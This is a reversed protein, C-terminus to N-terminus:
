TSSGTSALWRPRCIATPTPSERRTGARTSAAAAARRSTPTRASPPARRPSSATGTGTSTVRECPRRQLPLREGSGTSSRRSMGPRRGDRDADCNNLPRARRAAGTPSVPQEGSDYAYNMLSPYNPKCNVDPLRTTRGATVSGSRTDPRTPRSTPTTSTTRRPSGAAPRRRRRHRLRVRLPLRWAAGPEAATRWANGASVGQYSDGVKNADVGNFGGWDGYIAADAPTEPDRGTDLHVSIGPSGDPNGVYGAHLRRTASDVTERDGYFDKFKRAVDAAMMETSEDDNEEKTRRMWDVEVFLDKHRPSAGWTPLALNAAFGDRSVRGGVTELGDALGDGDTDRLDPIVGCTVGSVVDGRAACTGLRSEVERGLGDGDADHGPLAADNRILRTRQEGADTNVSGANALVVQRTGLNAEVELEAGGGPANGVRRREIARGDASLLYLAHASKSGPQRVTTIKEGTRLGTLTMPQWPVFAVPRRSRRGEGYTTQLTARGNGAATAARIVLYHTARKPSRYVLKAANGPGSNDDMAVQRGSTDVLHLTPDAGATLDSTEFTVTEGKDLTVGMTPLHTTRTQLVRSPALVTAFLRDMTATLTGPKLTGSKLSSAPPANGPDAANAGSAPAISGLGLLAGVVLTPLSRRASLM